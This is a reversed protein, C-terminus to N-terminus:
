SGTRELADRKPASGLLRFFGVRMSLVVDPPRDNQRRGLVDREARGKAKDTGGSRAHGWVFRDETSPLEAGLGRPSAVGSRWSRGRSWARLRVQGGACGSTEM